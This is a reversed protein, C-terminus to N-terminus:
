RRKWVPSRKELFSNFGERADQSNTVSTTIEGQLEWEREPPWTPSYTIVKKAADVALPANAAIRKALELAVTRAQGKPVVRNILGVGYLREAPLTDGLLNLEMALQVPVRRLRLLGGGAAAVGAKAEPLGFKTGEAAVILDCALVMEFGGGVAFGEVAAILPKTSPREAIGAFGRGGARPVGNELFGQIDAGCCFREGAATIVGVRLGDDKDLTELASAIGEAMALNIANMKSPRNLTIVLVQGQREVIVANENDTV